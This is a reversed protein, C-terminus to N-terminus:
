RRTLCASLNRSWWSLDVKSAPLPEWSRLHQGCVSFCLTEAGPYLRRLTRPHLLLLFSPNKLIKKKKSTSLKKFGKNFGHVSSSRNWAEVEQSYHMQFGLGVRAGRILSGAWVGWRGSGWGPLRFGLRWPLLCNRFTRM